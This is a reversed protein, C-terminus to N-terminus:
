ISSKLQSFLLYSNMKIKKEENEKETLDYIKKKKSLKEPTKYALIEQQSFSFNKNKKKPTKINELNEKNQGENEDLYFKDSIFEKIEKTKKLKIEEEKSKKKCNLNIIDQNFNGEKLLMSTAKELKSNKNKKRKKQSKSKKIKEFINSNGLRSNIGNYQSCESFNSLSNLSNQNFSSIQNSNKFTFINNKSINPTSINSNNISNENTFSSVKKFLDCYLLQNINDKGITSSSCSTSISNLNSNSNIVEIKKSEILNKAGRFSLIKNDNLKPQPKFYHNITKIKINDKPNYNNNLNKIYNMRKKGLLEVENVNSKINEININEIKFLEIIKKQYKKANLIIELKNSIKDINPLKIVFNKFFNEIVDEDYNNIFKEFLNGIENKIEDECYNKNFLIEYSIISNEM